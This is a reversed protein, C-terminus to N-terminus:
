RMSAIAAVTDALRRGYSREDKYLFYQLSAEIEARTPRPPSAVLARLDSGLADADRNLRLGAIREIGEFHLYYRYANHPSTYHIGDDYTIALVPTGCLLSEILMTTLPCVVLEAGALLRPYYDLKPQFYFDGRYYSEALQEDLVVRRFDKEHFVDPSLRAQRRPHPRYVIKLDGYVDPHRELEDDLRHLAGLEDFALAAGCFLVYRFPYPPTVTRKDVSYYAEFRPTGILSVRERPIGHIREAHERSQEGWVCLHDPVAWFLSKSSLNDWNDVLFLSEFGHKEALRVVDNGMADHASCPFVAVDPAVEEVIRALDANIPLRDILRPIAHPAVVRNGLLVYKAAQRLGALNKGIHVVSDNPYSRYLRSFRYAFTKSRRRHRWTLVNFLEYHAADTAEDTAIVGAFGPLARVVDVQKCHDSVAFHCEHEAQLAAFAGTQVYYRIYDDYPLLILVRM